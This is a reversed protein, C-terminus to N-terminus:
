KARSQKLKRFRAAWGEKLTQPARALGLADVPVKQTIVSGAGIFAGDEITVPAVLISNSGVFVGAGINTQYKNFGDYNCTITGAGINSGPGIHADGIYTLHNVKSGKEVTAKKIEVFNGIHAEAGIDAGPRLRAFPGIIAGSAISAQEIHCFARIDVHDGVRVGPGFFVNPGIVVDRGLVTDHSLMVTAPDLMTVGGEMAARRLRYQMLQEAVALEIRSNVGLVDEAPLLATACVLGKARALAICDTLYYEGKANKNDIAELLSWLHASDFLMMGGNCLRVAKEAQNAEKAEVIRALEGAEDLILRGYAGPDPPTFGGVVIAAGTEARRCRLAKLSHATLLPTDGFLIAVDGQFGDLAQRAARVAHGTGLPQEQIAVSHPAVLAAVAEMQPALVAVVRAANLSTCLDLVHALMPKGAVPHLVKPLDSKM